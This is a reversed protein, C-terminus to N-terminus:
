DTEKKINLCFAKTSINVKDGININKSEEDSVVVEILKNGLSIVAINIIDNKRIDVIEGLLSFKESSRSNILINSPKDFNKIKGKEIIMMKDALKYIESPSHSVMITTLGFKKHFLMIENQLKERMQTDLASFPEDLLLIKPKRMLARCLAVRQKQGGSLTNPYRNKLEEIEATQLLEMAFDRDKKVYLLNELVTMNPFLAFDQFLFGIERKQPPLFINKGLWKENDVVIEGLSKELGSIIRLLTTKGSGSPGSVAIFEGKKIEFEVELLMEGDSGHLQKRVNIYIMSSEKTKKM